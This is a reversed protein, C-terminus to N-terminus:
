WTTLARRPKLLYESREIMFPRDCVAISQNEPNFHGLIICPIATTQHERYLWYAEWDNSSILKGGREYILLPMGCKDLQADFTERFEDHIVPKYNVLPHIAPMEVFAKQYYHWGHGAMYALDKLHLDDPPRNGLWESDSLIPDPYNWGGFPTVVDWQQKQKKRFLRSVITM